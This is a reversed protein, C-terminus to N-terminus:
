WQNRGDCETAKKRNQLNIKWKKFRLKADFKSGGKSQMNTWMMLMM